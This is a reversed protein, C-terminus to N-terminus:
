YNKMNGVSTREFKMMNKLALDGRTNFVNESMYLDHRLFVGGWWLFDQDREWINTFFGPGRLIDPEGEDYIKPREDYALVYVYTCLHMRMGAICIVCMDSEMFKAIFFPCPKSTHLLRM